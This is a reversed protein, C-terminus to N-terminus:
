MLGRYGGPAGDHQGFSVVTGVKSVRGRKVVVETVEGGGLAPAEAM